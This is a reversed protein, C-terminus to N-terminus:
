MTRVSEFNRDGALSRSRAFQINEFNFLQLELQAGAKMGATKIHRCIASTAM